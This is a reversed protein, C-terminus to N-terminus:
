NIAHFAISTNCSHATKKSNCLFRVETTTKVIAKEVDSQSSPHDSSVDDKTHRDSVSGEPEGDSLPDVEWWPSAGGCESATHFSSSRSPPTCTCESATVFDDESKSDDASATKPPTKLNSYWEQFAM